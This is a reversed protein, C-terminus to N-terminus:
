LRKYGWFVLRFTANCGRRDAQPYQFEIETVVAGDTRQTAGGEIRKHISFSDRTSVINPLVRLQVGKSGSTSVSVSTNHQNVFSVVFLQVGKSGSTSVSVMQIIPQYHIAVNNCGRRDAQPYQFADNNSAPCPQASTAGGEIRKHISFCATIRYLLVAGASNCGRRDAQPYQFLCNYSIVTSSWRQQVGKSGSTSVSVSTSTDVSRKYRKTAGGEIRKHISFSTLASGFLQVCRQQVGKSGSTSVSVEHRELHRMLSFGTAGGEIRKHISFCLPLSSKTVVHYLQM